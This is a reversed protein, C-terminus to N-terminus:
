VPWNLPKKQRFTPSAVKKPFVPFGPMKERNKSTKKSSKVVFCTRVGMKKTNKIKEGTEWVFFYGTQPTLKPDFKLNPFDEFFHFGRLKGTQDIKTIKPM